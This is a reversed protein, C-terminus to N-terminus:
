PSTLREVVVYDVSWADTPVDTVTGTSWWVIEAAYTGPQLATHAPTLTFRFTGATASVITGALDFKVTHVLEGTDDIHTQRVRLQFAYGTINVVANPDAENRFTTLEYTLVAGVNERVMIIKDAM